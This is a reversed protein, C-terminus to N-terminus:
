VRYRNRIAMFELFASEVCMADNELDEIRMRGRSVTKMRGELWPPIRFELPMDKRLPTYDWTAHVYFNRLHRVHETASSWEKFASSDPIHECDDLLEGLKAVIEQIGVKRLYTHLTTPDETNALVRLCLGLNLELLNFSRLIRGLSTNIRVEHEM